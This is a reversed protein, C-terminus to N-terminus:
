AKGSSRPPERTADGLLLKLADPRSSGSARDITREANLVEEAAAVTRTQNKRAEDRQALAEDREAELLKMQFSKIWGMTLIGAVFTGLLVFFQLNM